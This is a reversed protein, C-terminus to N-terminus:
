NHDVRGNTASIARREGGSMLAEAFDQREEMLSLRSDIGTLLERIQAMDAGAPVPRPQTRERTMAEILGGVKSTMPRLIMVAGTTLIATIPVSMIILLEGM